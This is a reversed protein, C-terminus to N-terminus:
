HLLQGPVQGKQGAQRDHEFGGSPAIRTLERNPQEGHQGSGQVQAAPRNRM